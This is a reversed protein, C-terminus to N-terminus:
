ELSLDFKGAINILPYTSWQSITTMDGLSNNLWGLIYAIVMSHTGMYLWYNNGYLYSFNIHYIRRVRLDINWEVVVAMVYNKGEIAECLEM